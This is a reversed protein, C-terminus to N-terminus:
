LVETKFLNEYDQLQHYVADVYAIGSQVRFIFLYDHSHFLIKKYGLAKLEEDDCYRLSDAINLLTDRTRLADLTINKAAQPNGKELLVYLVYDDLQRQAYPSTIVKSVM